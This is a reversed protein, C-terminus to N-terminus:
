LHTGPNDIDFDVQTGYFYGTLVFGDDKGVAIDNAVNAKYNGVNKAFIYNGNSDYKAFFM